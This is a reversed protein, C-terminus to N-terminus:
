GAAVGDAWAELMTAKGHLSTVNDSLSQLNSRYRRLSDDLKATSTKLEGLVDRWAAVALRQDTMAQNLSELAKAMRDEPPLARVPFPIITASVVAPVSETTM